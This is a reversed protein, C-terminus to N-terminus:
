GEGERATVPEFSIAAVWPNQSWSEPGHISQWFTKFSAKADRCCQTSPMIYDCWGDSDREVGEAKRIAEELKARAMRPLSALGDRLCDDDADRVMVLVAYMEPAAAILRADQFTPTTFWQGVTEDGSFIGTKNVTWPGPTHEGM